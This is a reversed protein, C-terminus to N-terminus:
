KNGLIEEVRLEPEMSREPSRWPLSGWENRRLQLVSELYETSWVESSGNRVESELNRDGIREAEREDNAEVLIETHFTVRYLKM